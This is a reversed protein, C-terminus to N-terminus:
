HHWRASEEGATKLHRSNAASTSEAAGNTFNIMQQTHAQVPKKPADARRRADRKIEILSFALADRRSSIEPEAERVAQRLRQSDENQAAALRIIIQM